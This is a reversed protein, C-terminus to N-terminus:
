ILSSEFAASMFPSSEFEQATVPYSFLFGQMEDCGHQKLFALEEQSEVGEAIVKLNLEHAMTIIATMIASNTENTHIKHVFSRDIKIKDFPFQQLYSLSSYGTGFDDIAVSLGLTKLAKLRRIAVEANQVLTSETLELELYKSDINNEIL